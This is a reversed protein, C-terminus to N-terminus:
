QTAVRLCERLKAAVASSGQEAVSDADARRWLWLLMSVPDGTLTVDAATDPAADTVSVGDGLTVLWASDAARILATRGDTPLLGEFDELWEQAAYALFTRLVEDIGDIAIDEPITALDAGLGLEGDVRHIVSEQAMRRIWFGVTQDPAYWTTAQDGAARASFEAVLEGYARELYDAAPGPSREPPWDTPFAGQRLTEAKHLYVTAVHDVLDTVTWEPCTPVKAAMADADARAALDHLRRYDSDLSELLRATSTTTM